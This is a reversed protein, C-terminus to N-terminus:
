QSFIATMWGDAIKLWYSGRTDKLVLMPTNIVRSFNTGDMPRLVPQGQVPVLVTPTPSVTIAPPTNELQAAPAAPASSMGPVAAELRDLSVRLVRGQSKSAIEASISAQLAANEPVSVSSVRIGSLTVVRNLKNVETTATFALVGFTQSKGDANAIALACTGKLETGTWSQFSPPYVTLTSADGKIVRPWTDEAVGDPPSQAGAQLQDTSDQAHVRAALCVGCVLALVVRCLARSACAAPSVKSASM